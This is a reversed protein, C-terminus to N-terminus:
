LNNNFLKENTHYAFNIAYHIASTITLAWHGERVEDRDEGGDRGGACVVSGARPSGCALGRVGRPLSAVEQWVGRTPDLIETSSLHQFKTWGGTVMYFQPPTPPPPLPLVSLEARTTTLWADM